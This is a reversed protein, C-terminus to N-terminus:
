GAAPTWTVRLVATRGPALARLAGVPELEVLRSRPRWGGLSPLGHEAPQQMWVQFAGGGVTRRPPAFRVSLTAGDHFRATARGTTGPFGAKGTGGGFRMRVRGGEATWRLEGAHRGLDVPPRGDTPVTIGAEAAREDAPEFPVQAVEWAACRRPEASENRLRTTVTVTDDGLRITRGMRVGSVPDRGSELEVAHPSRAVVRFPGGDFTPDPPGPWTGDSGDGQPAVWSKDGGWNQWERMAAGPRLRVVAVRPLLDDGVLDPDRWLFERGGSGMSLLRGGLDPVVGVELAGARLRVVDPVGM